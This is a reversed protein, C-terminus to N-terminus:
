STATPRASAGFPYVFFWRFVRAVEAEGHDRLPSLGSNVKTFYHYSKDTAGFSRKFRYLDVMEPRTGGFSLMRRGSEIADEAVRHVVLNMPSHRRFAQPAVPVLYEVLGRYYLVLLLAATEEGLVARYVRYDHGAKLNRAIAHFFSQPKPTAGLGRM